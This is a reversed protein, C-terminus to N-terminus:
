KARLRTRAETTNEMTVRVGYTLQIHANKESTGEEVRCVMLTIQGDAFRMQAEAHISNVIM